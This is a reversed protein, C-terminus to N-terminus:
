SLDLIELTKLKLVGIETIKNASLILKKLNIDKLYDDCFSVFNKIGCYSLDLSIL